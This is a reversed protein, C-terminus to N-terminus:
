KNTGGDSRKPRLGSRESRWDRRWLRMDPRESRLDLKGLTFDPRKPLLGSPSSTKYFVPPSENM